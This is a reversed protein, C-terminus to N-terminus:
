NIQGQLATADRRLQLDGDAHSWLSLILHLNKAANARDGLQVYDTALLYYATFTQQQPEWMLRNPESVFREYWQVAERTRGAMQCFHALAEETLLSNSTFAEPRPPPLMRIAGDPDGEAAKIEASLLQLYFMQEEVNRNALPEIFGLVDKAKRLEGARVYAQGLLSGYVVNQKIQRLSANITNLQADAESKRGEGEAIEALLYRVRAASLPSDGTLKLAAELYPRADDYKGQYMDLMALSVEGRERADPVSLDSKFEEEAEEFQGNEILASGYERSVNGSLHIRPDLAFAKRYFDIAEPGRHLGRAATALEIYIPPFDHMQKLARSYADFASQPDGSLRLTYAYNYQASLDDPYRALYTRYLSLADNFRSQSQAYQIAILDRERDSVRDALGLAKKYEKEGDMPDNVIFSYDANALAAHAMAFNPDYRIAKQYLAIGEEHRHLNWHSIGDSYAQLAELSSTTVRALPQHGLHVQLLSEGLARRLDGTLDDLAPLIGDEGDVNREDTVITKGNAGEVLQVTIRFHQGARLISPLVLVPIGERQCIELGIPATITENPAREMRQLVSSLLLRPYVSIQRSQGIDTSLALFLGGGFRPDGTENDFDAVLVQGTGNSAIVNRRYNLWFWLVAITAIGVIVMTWWSSLLRSVASDKQRSVAAVELDIGSSQGNTSGISSVPSAGDVSNGALSSDPEVAGKAPPDSVVVVPAVLRYGRGRVTEIYQPSQPDDKLTERLKRMATNLGDEFDVFTDAPWLRERLEARSLVQGPREALAILIKRPMEQLHIRRNECRLDGSSIELEFAGILYSAPISKAPM